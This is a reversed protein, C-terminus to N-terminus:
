FRVKAGIFPGSFTLDSVVDSNGIDWTLHRYGFSLDWNNIRYDLAGSLQWTLDSQGTGIDGYYSLRWREALQTTGRLGVIADWNSVGGSLQQSGGAVAINTDTDIDNGRVGGAVSFRTTGTDVLDYGVLGTFVLGKVDAYASAPIGPGFSASEDNSMNLYLFDGFLYIQDHRAELAGMLGFDLNSIIDDFGIEMDDGTTTTGSLTPGWLYFYGTFDWSNEQALAQSGTGALLTLGVAAARFTTKTTM